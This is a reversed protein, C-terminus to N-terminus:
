KQTYVRGRGEGKFPLDMGLLLRKVSSPSSLGLFQQCQQNNITSHIMLYDHIAQQHATKSVHQCHPCIWRGHIRDMAFRLCDPCQVGNIFDTTDIEYKQFPDPKFPTHSELLLASLKQLYSPTFKKQPQEEQLELIKEPIHEAHLVNKFILHNDSNTRLITGPMSVSVLFEVPYPKIHHLKLWEKLLMKQRKAQTLPNPFGEEEGQYTRILQQSHHDFFLQGYINKSEIIISFQPHLVLTDMQFTKKEFSLRLDHFIFYDKEPLFGLYYALNQEGRFGVRSKRCDQEIQSRKKHEIPLRRLLIEEMQLRLPLTLPKIIM